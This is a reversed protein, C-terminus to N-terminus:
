DMRLSSSRTPTVRTWRVVRLTVSVSAPCLSYIRTAGASASAPNATSSIPPSFWGEPINLNATDDM